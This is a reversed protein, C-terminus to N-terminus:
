SAAKHFGNYFTVIEGVVSEVEEAIAQFDTAAAPNITNLFAEFDNLVKALKTPGDEGTAEADKVLQNLAILASIAKPIDGLVGTMATFFGLITSLNM